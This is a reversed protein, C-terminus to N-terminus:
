RVIFRRTGGDWVLRGRVREYWARWKGIELDFDQGTLVYLAWFEPPATVNPEISDAEYNRDPGKGARKMAELCNILIPICELDGTVMWKKVLDLRQRRDNSAMCEGGILELESAGACGVCLGLLLALRKM